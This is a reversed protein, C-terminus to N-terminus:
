TQQKNIKSWIISIQHYYLIIIYCVIRPSGGGGGGSSLLKFQDASHTSMIKEVQNFMIYLIVCTINMHYIQLAPKSKPSYKFLTLLVLHGRASTICDVEQLVLPWNCLFRVGPRTLVSWSILDVHHRHNVGYTVTIEVWPVPDNASRGVSSLWEANHDFVWAVSKVLEIQLACPSM